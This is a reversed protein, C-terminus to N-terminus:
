RQNPVDGPEIVASDVEALIGTPDTPRDVVPQNCNRRTRDAEVVSRAVMSRVDADTMLLDNTTRVKHDIVWTDACNDCITQMVEQDSKPGCCTCTERSVYLIRSWKADSEGRLKIRLEGLVHLVYSMNETM